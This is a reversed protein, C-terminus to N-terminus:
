AAHRGLAKQMALAAQEMQADIYAAIAHPLVLRRFHQSQKTFRGGSHNEKAQGFQNPLDAIPPATLSRCSKPASSSRRKAAFAL